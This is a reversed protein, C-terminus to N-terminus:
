VNQDVYKSFYRAPKIQIGVITIIKLIVQILIIYPYNQIECPPSAESTQTHDEEIQQEEQEVSYNEVHSIELEKNRKPNLQLTRTKNIENLKNKIDKNTFKIELIRHHQSSRTQM